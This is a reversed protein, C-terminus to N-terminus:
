VVEFYDELNNIRIIGWRGTNFVQNYSTNYLCSVAPTHRAIEHCFFFRDDIYAGIDLGNVIGAKSRVDDILTPNSIGLSHELWYLTQVHTVRPRATIFILRDQRNGYDHITVLEPMTPLVPLTKWFDVEKGYLEDMFGKVIRREDGAATEYRLLSLAQTTSIPRELRDTLIDALGGIFDALVGDIDFGFLM